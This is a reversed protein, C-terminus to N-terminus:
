EVDTESYGLSELQLSMALNEKAGDLLEHAMQLNAARAQLVPLCASFVHMIQSRASPQDADEELTNADGDDDDQTLAVISAHLQHCERHLDEIKELMANYPRMPSYHDEEAVAPQGTALKLAESELLSCADGHVLFAQMTSPATTTLKDTSLEDFFEVKREADLRVRQDAVDSEQEDLEKTRQALDKEANTEATEFCAELTSTM